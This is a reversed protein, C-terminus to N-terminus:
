AKAEKELRKWATPSVDDLDLTKLALTRGDRQDEILYVSGMGGKGILREVKYREHIIRGVLSADMSAPPEDWSKAQLPVPPENACKCPEGAFIWSTLSGKRARVKPKGCIACNADM